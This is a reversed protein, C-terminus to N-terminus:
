NSEFQISASPLGPSSAKLVINGKELGSKVIVLCKGHWAKRYMLQYSELSVPNANGIGVITAPGEIDFLIPNEAKPNRIGNADTVEVTIYSLDQGDAKIISRDAKIRIQAPDGATKLESTNVQKKGTIGVAKLIGPQYPVQWVAMFKTIRNTPKKGLSIGNLFLEVQECSSYVNVEMSKFGDGPWNWDDVADLWHWKSWSQRDPNLAFSPQPPTV